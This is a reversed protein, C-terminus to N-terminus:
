EEKKIARDLEEVAGKDGVPRTTNIEAFGSANAIHDEPVKVLEEKKSGEKKM